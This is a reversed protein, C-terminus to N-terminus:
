PIGRLGSQVEATMRGNVLAPVNAHRRAKRRKKKKAPTIFKLAATCVILDDVYGMYPADPCFDAPTLVYLICLNIVGVKATPRLIWRWVAVCAKVIMAVLASLMKVIGDMIAYPLTWLLWRVVRLLTMSYDRMENM